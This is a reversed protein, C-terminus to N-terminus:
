TAAVPLFMSVTTGEGLESEITVAGNSQTVFGYVMSLGLGSGEGVKRTTFFPEFARRVSEPAMGCGSDSISIEVYRGEPLPSELPLPDVAVIANERVTVTLTGGDPMAHRANIALNLIANEM